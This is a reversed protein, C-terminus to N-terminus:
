TIVSARSKFPEGSELCKSIIKFQDAGRARFFIVWTTVGFGGAAKVGVIVRDASNKYIDLSQHIAIVYIPIQM